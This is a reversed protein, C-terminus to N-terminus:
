RHAQLLITYFFLVIDRIVYDKKTQTPNNYWITKLTVIVIVLFAIPQEPVSRAVVSRSFGSFRSFGGFGCNKWWFYLKRVLNHRWSPALGRVRKKLLDKPKM